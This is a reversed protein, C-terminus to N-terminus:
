AENSDVEQGLDLSVFDVYSNRCMQLGKADDSDRGNVALDKYFMFKKKLFDIEDKIQYRLYRLNNNNVRDLLEELRYFEDVM